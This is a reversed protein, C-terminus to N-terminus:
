AEDALKGQVEQPLDNWLIDYYFARIEPYCVRAIQEEQTM